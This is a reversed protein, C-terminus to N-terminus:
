KKFRYNEIRVNWDSYVICTYDDARAGVHGQPLKRIRWPLNIYACIIDFELLLNPHIM